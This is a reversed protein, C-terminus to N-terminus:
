EAEVIDKELPQILAAADNQEQEPVQLEQMAAVFHETAKDWEAKTIGIGEHVTKMDRGVYYCPGGTEKCFFDVINQRLRMKSDNSIGTFFREFMDDELLRGVFNDTVAAIADYGGLRQYLTEDKALAASSLASALPLALLAVALMHSFRNM